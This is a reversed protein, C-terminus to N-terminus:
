KCNGPGMQAIWQTILDVAERHVITRGIEPMKIGPEVSNIRYVMISQGPNGPVIDYIRNGTAKNADVLHKCVGMNEPNTNELNLHLASTYAPGKPNHCHGCNVELYARARENINYHVSDAWDALKPIAELAPASKLIGAKVWHAFQNETIDSYSFDRNLNRAKPGLPTIGASSNWHCGKCQNKNPVVYDIERKTGDSHIWSVKKIDGSNELTAETQEDNWVYALADWGTTRHVLLRTEIIKRKGNKTRFDEPYYFSKILCAGVPFNIVSTTDYNATKGQPMFIFRAKYAYDTFLPTILDYPTVNTNPKLESIVGTFFNYDSLKDFPKAAVDLVVGATRKTNCSVLYLTVVVALTLIINTRLVPRM